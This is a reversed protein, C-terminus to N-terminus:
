DSIPVEPQDQQDQKGGASDSGQDSTQAKNDEGTGPKQEGEVPAAAKKGEQKELISQAQSGKDHALVALTLSTAFFCAGLVATTRTLISSAAHAGALNGMGGSQGIGLGGGESRQILVLGIIALALLLHIVLIVTEM